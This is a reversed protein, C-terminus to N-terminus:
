LTVFAPLSIADKLRPAAQDKKSLLPAEVPWQVGIDPDDWALGHECEPAYFDTCKYLFDASDSLVCFGHAFGAPVWLQRGNEGSLELGFWRGFTPSGRRVDVAVDWVAGAIVQVLKGQAHPLQYHLGRLTGKVSRSYNDQVFAAPIGIELYRRQHYTEFFFGRADGFRKPEIVLVGPVPAEKVNM